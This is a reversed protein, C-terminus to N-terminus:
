GISQGPVALPGNSGDGRVGTWARLEFTEVGEVKVVLVEVSENTALLDRLKRWATQGPTNSDLRSRSFIPM